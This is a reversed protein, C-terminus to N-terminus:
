TTTTKKVSSAVRSLFTTGADRRVIVGLVAITRETVASTAIRVLVFMPRAKEVDQGTDNNGPLTENNSQVAIQDSNVNGSGEQSAGIVYSTSVLAVLLVAIVVYVKKMNHKLIKCVNNLM